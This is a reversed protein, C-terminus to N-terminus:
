SSNAENIKEKQRLAPSQSKVDDIESFKESFDELYIANEKRMAASVHHSRFQEKNRMNSRLMTGNKEIAPIEIQM